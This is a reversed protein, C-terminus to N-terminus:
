IRHPTHVHKLGRGECSPRRRQVDGDPTERHKLGRGECSPRRQRRRRARIGEVTEIWAGRMLPSPQGRGQHIRPGRKLGRGECSPRGPSSSWHHALSTEIWAGRMLPSKSGSSTPMNLTAPKLGRGECSPRSSRSRSNPSPAFTEIWAGRMLPSALDYVHPIRHKRKLGRGECSPRGRDRGREAPEYRKM